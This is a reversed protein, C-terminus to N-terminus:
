LKVFSLGVVLSRKEFVTIKLVKNKYTFPTTYPYSMVNDGIFM